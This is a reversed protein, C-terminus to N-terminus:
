AGATGPSAAADGPGASFLTARWDVGDGVPPRGQELTEEPTHSFLGVGATSAESVCEEGAPESM